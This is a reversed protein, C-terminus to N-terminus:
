HLQPVSNNIENLTLLTLNSYCVEPGVWTGKQLGPDGRQTPAKTPPQIQKGLSSECIVIFQAAYFLM